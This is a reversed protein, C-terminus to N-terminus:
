SCRQAANPLTPAGTLTSTLVLSTRTRPRAYFRSSLDSRGPDAARGLLAPHGYDETIVRMADVLSDSDVNRDSSLSRLYGKM